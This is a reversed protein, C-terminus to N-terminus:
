RQQSYLGWTEDWQCGEEGTLYGATVLYMVGVTAWPSVFGMSGEGRELGDIWRTGNCSWHSTFCDGTSEGRKRAQM